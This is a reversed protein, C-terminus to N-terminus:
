QINITVTNATQGGATLIVPVEGAGALSAPVVVNLQDEGPYQPQAGIYLIQAAVGGISVSSLASSNLNRFGTGYFTVVLEQGPSGLSMPVSVCSTTCQFVPVTTATGDASYLAAGAAAVGTGMGNMSYLGPGITDIQASGSSAGITVTAIGSATGSPVIFNVQSPSVYEIPASQTAGTSDTISVTVGGLSTPYPATV